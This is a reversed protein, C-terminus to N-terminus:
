SERESSSRFSPRFQEPAAFWTSVQGAVAFPHCLQSDLPFSWPSRRVRRAPSGLSTHGVSSASAPPAAAFRLLDRGERGSKRSANLRFSTPGATNEAGLGTANG